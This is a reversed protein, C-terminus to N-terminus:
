AFFSRAIHVIKKWLVKVAFLGVAVAGIAVQIVLSGTAPDIYAYCFQPVAVLIACLMLVDRAKM